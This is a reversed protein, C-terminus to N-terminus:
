KIRCKTDRGKLTIVSKNKLLCWGQSVKYREKVLNNSSCAAVGESCGLDQLLDAFKRQTTKVTKETFVNYFKYLTHDYRWHDKGTNHVLADISRQNVTYNKPQTRKLSTNEAPMINVINDLINIWCQEVITLFEKEIYQIKVDYNKYKNYVNQLYKNRHTGNKLHFKHNKMRNSINVSQGVYNYKDIKIVYVGPKGHYMTNISLM